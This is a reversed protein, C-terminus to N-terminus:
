IGLITMISKCEAETMWEAVLEQAVRDENTLAFHYTGDKGLVSIEALELVRQFIREGNIIEAVHIM